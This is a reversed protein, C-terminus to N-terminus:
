RSVPSNSCPGGAGGDGDARVLMRPPDAAIWGRWQWYAGASGARQFLPLARHYQARAGDHDSRGSALVGLVFCTRAQQLTTGHAQITDEAIKVLAPQILGTYRWYEVLGYSGDALEDTRRDAAARELMAAINGTDAPLRAAARAGDSRGVQDGTVAALQAYHSVARDLDAPDPPHATAIHERAIGDPLTGLLSLLREAPATM